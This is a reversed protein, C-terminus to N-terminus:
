FMCRSKSLWPDWGLLLGDLASLGITRTLVVLCSDVDLYVGAQRGTYGLYSPCPIEARLTISFKVKLDVTPYMGM